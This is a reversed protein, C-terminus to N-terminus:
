VDQFGFLRVANGGLLKAKGTESLDPLLELLDERYSRYSEGTASAGFGGGYLLRDEGWLESLRQLIPRVDRHPYSTQAPIASFKMITNDLESWGLVTAHEDPTGQMPRGLHDIIVRVDRFERVYSDIQGAYRPELHVQMAIGAEAANKWLQRLEQSGFPPLRDPAYAHLRTAIIKGEHRRLFSPMSALSQPRDAFFLTTGKLRGQGIDLCYELYRHDDQYPEPHVVIARDVGAWNM